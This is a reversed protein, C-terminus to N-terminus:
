LTDTKQHQEQQHSPHTTHANSHIRRQHLVRLSSHQSLTTLLVYLAFRILALRREKSM